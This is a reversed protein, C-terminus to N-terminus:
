KIEYTLNIMVVIENEGSPVDPAISAGGKGLAEAQMYIRPYAGGSENFSILRGLKIGLDVALSKAKAKANEIAQRRAQEKLADPNDITFNLGGVLNAGNDTAGALINGVNNLNRIKVLLNQSVEYGRFIQKGREYDYLPMINYNTTKIDKEEIGASKLFSFIKNIANTSQKQADAVTKAQNTVGLNIEAIDPKAFLSGKGDVTIIRQNISEIASGRNTIENKAKAGLFVILAILLISLIVKFYNATIIKEFNEIKM